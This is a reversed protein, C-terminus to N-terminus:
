PLYGMPDVPQGNVRVEFHLHPGFCLGTCDSIGIVQGQSVQQGVSVSISEQHAYCTSIGGGHDLCTYNGYGSEPGAISVTGAAAAQIPTGSPVGIDIGPHCSEWPRVECFPSTIPGNVPWIMGSSSEGQVPGAPATTTGSSSSAQAAAAAQAQQQAQLQSQIQASIDGIDGELQDKSQQVQGLIQQDQQRAVVLDSQRAELEAQSRQLEAQKAAISDRAARVRDVTDKEENRLRKVKVAISTDQSQIRQLYDYRTVLDDFGRSNLIVTMADPSNSKYIQVLRQRLVRLSRELRVRLAALKAKAEKLEAEKKRLQAQVIAIRNRLTAVESRLQDLQDGYKQITTSLVGERSKAQQLKQQKQDLQSRSQDLNSQIEQLSQAPAGGAVTLGAAVVLLAALALLAFRRRPHQQTNPQNM